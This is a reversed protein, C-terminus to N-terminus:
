KRNLTNIGFEAWFRAFAVGCHGHKLDIRVTAKHLDTASGTPRPCTNEIGTQHVLQAFVGRRVARVEAFNNHSINHSKPISKVSATSSSPNSRTFPISGEDRYSVSLWGQHGITQV